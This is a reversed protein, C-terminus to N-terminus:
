DCNEGLIAINWRFFMGIMESMSDPFMIFDDLKDPLVDSTLAALSEPTCDIPYFGEELESYSRNCSLDPHHMKLVKSYTVSEELSTGLWGINSELYHSNLFLMMDVIEKNKPELGIAYKITKQHCAYGAVQHEVPGFCDDTFNYLNDGVDAYLILVPLTDENIYNSEDVKLKYM